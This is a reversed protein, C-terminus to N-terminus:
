IYESESNSDSVSESDSTESDDSNKNQGKSFHLHQEEYKDMTKFAAKTRCKKAMHIAASVLMADLLRGNEKLFLLPEFMQPSFCSQINNVVFKAM